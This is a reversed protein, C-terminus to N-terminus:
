GNWEEAIFRCIKELVTVKNEGLLLLKAVVKEILTNNILAGYDGFAVVRKSIGKKMRYPVPLPKDPEFVILDVDGMKRKDFRRAKKYTLFCKKRIMRRKEMIKITKEDGERRFGQGSWVNRPVVYEVFHYGMKEYFGTPDTIGPRKGSWKVRIKKPNLFKVLAEGLGKGRWDPHVLLNWLTGGQRGIAVAVIKGEHRLVYVYKKKSILNQIIGKPLFGRGNLFRDFLLLIEDLEELSATTIDGPEVVFRGLEKNYVRCFQQVRFFERRRM